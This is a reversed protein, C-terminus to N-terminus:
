FQMTICVQSLIHFTTYVIITTIIFKCANRRASNIRLKLNFTGTSPTDYILQFIQLYFNRISQRIHNSFSHISSTNQDFNLTFSTIGDRQILFYGRQRLRTVAIIHNHKIPNAQSLSETHKPSGLGPQSPILYVYNMVICVVRKLQVMYM